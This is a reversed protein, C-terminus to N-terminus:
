PPNAVSPPPADPTRRTPSLNGSAHSAPQSLLHPPVPTSSTSPPLLPPTSTIRTSSPPYIPLQDDEPHVACRPQTENPRQESQRRPQHNPCLHLILERSTFM